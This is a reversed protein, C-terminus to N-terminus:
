RSSGSVGGGRGWQIQDASIGFIRSSGGGGVSFRRSRSFVDFTGPSM